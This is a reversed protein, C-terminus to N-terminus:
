SKTPGNWIGGPCGWVYAYNSGAFPHVTPDYQAFGYAHNQYCWGLNGAFVPDWGPGNPNTLYSVVDPKLTVYYNWWQQGPDGQAM